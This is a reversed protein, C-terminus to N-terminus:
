VAAAEFRAAAAAAAATAIVTHPPSSVICSSHGPTEPRHYSCLARTRTTSAHAVVGLPRSRVRTVAARQCVSVGSM